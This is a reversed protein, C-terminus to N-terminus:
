DIWSQLTDIIMKAQKANTINFKSRPTYKGDRKQYRRIIYKDDSYAQDAKLWTQYRFIITTWAGKSLIVKDLQKTTLIGGEEFDVTLDDPTTMSFGKRHIIYDNMNLAVKNLSAVTMGLM